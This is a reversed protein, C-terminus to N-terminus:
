TNKKYIKILYKKKKLIFYSPYKINDGIRLLNFQNKINKNISIKNDKPYRRCNFNGKGKQKKSKVKPYRKLFKKIIALTSKAQKKRIEDSLETGDFRLNEIMFINGTDVKEKAEILCVKILNKNKLIQNAVPAFGKDNPLNSEHVILNLKNKNLFSKPLIRTYKLIFVLDQNIILKFNKKINYIYKKKLGFNYKLIYKEFWNNSKDLLFTVKYKKM